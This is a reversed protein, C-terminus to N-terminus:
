AQLAAPMVEERSVGAASLMSVSKGDLEMIRMAFESLSSARVSVIRAQEASSFKFTEDGYGKDIARAPNCLLLARFEESVIAASLLRSFEASDSVTTNTGPPQSVMRIQNVKM